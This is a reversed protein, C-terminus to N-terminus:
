DCVDFKLKTNLKLNTIIEYFNAFEKYQKLCELTYHLVLPIDQLYRPKNDRIHLRSFIGLVKIHRQLGCLHFARVFESNTLSKALSSNTYYYSLLENIFDNPLKIYCDKLLSVLDYTFPSIKADQYDIIGLKKNQLVIINRSHYDMHAFAQPTSLLIDVLLNFSDSIVKKESNPIDIQLYKNLFWENFLNLETIIHQATFNPVDNSWTQFEIASTFQQKSETISDDHISTYVATRSWSSGQVDSETAPKSLLRNDINSVSQMKILIDLAEKYLSDRNDKNVVDLLLNDGFDELLAFAETLNYAYVKPAPLEWSNLYKTINMFKQFALKDLSSDMLIRSQDEYTIRYYQRMSADGALRLINYDHNPLTNKLWLSLANKQTLM